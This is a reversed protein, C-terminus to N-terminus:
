CPPRRNQMDGSEVYLLRRNSSHRRVYSLFLNLLSTESLAPKMTLDLLNTLEANGDSTVDLVDEADQTTLIDADIPHSHPATALSVSFSPLEPASAPPTLTM